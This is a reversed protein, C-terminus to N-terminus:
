LDFDHDIVEHIYIIYNIIIISVTGLHHLQINYM